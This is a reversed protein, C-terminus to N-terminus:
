QVYPRNYRPTAGAALHQAGDGCGNEDGQQCNDASSLPRQDRFPGKTAMGGLSAYDATSVNYRMRLVCLMSDAGAAELADEPVQWDYSATTAEKGEVVDGLHNQRSLPHM